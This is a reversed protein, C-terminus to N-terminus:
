TIVAPNIVHPIEYDSEDNNMEKIHILRVCNSNELEGDPFRKWHQYQAWYGIANSELTNTLIDLIEQEELEIEIIKM